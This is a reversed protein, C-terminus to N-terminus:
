WVPNQMDSANHYVEFYKMQQKKIDGVSGGLTVTNLQM